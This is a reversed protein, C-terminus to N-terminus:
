LIAEIWNFVALGYGSDNDQSHGKKKLINLIDDTTLDPKLQKWLAVMGAFTPTAMSTGSMAEFGDKSKDTIGDLVAGPSTGAYVYEQPKTEGLKRGGGLSAVDPKIYGDPSPGRSSFFAPANDIVSWSGVTISRKANGPTGTTKPGPGSNGAAIVFIHKDSYFNVIDCLPSESEPVGESGLSMSIVDAGMQIALEMGKAVGSTEGTGIGFGLVKISTMKVGPAIGYTKFGLPNIVPSGKIKTICWTGHGNEDIDAFPAVARSAVDGKLQPHAHFVGTDIVAVHVGKGTLNKQRAEGLGLIEEVVDSQVWAEMEQQPTVPPNEFAYMPFDIYLKSVGDISSLNNIDRTSAMLSFMGFTPITQMAFPMPPFNPPKPPMPFFPPSPLSPPLPPLIFNANMRRSLDLAGISNAKQFVETFREPECRVIIPTIQRSFMMKQLLPTVSM